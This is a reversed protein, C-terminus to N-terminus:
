RSSSFRRRVLLFLGAMACLLWTSSEPVPNLFPQLAVLQAAETGDSYPNLSLHYRTPPDADPHDWFPGGSWLTWGLWVDANNEVFNVGNFMAQVGLDSDPAGLEGLFGRLNNARLWDTFGALKEPVITASEVNDTLGSYDSSDGPNNDVYQHVEFALNPDSQISLMATSNSTGYWDQLWSHGGSYGNGEVLVLNTAGTDRIATLAQNTFDVVNETTMDHPENMLGFIVHDNSKFDASLRSWVDALTSNAIDTGLVDVQTPTIYRGYNHLDLIVNAGLSTAYNVADTLRTLEATDLAGGLTPQIREWRFPIRFTNMGLSHYYDFYSDDPYAYDTGYAGPLHNASADTDSYHGFEAGSLNIGRYEIEALAGSCCGIWAALCLWLTSPRHM